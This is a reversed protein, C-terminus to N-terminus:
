HMGQFYIANLLVFNIQPDFFENNLKTIKNSTITRIWNNLIETSEKKNKFNLNMIKADYDEFLKTRFLRSPNIGNFLGISGINMTYNRRKKSIEYLLKFFIWIKAM